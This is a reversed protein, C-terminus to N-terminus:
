GHQGGMRRDDGVMVARDAMETLRSKVREGLQAGLESVPVNSTILTPLMYEYRHNILRYNIEEVWESDKAAGLDDLVLVPADAYRQFEAESDVGHRPRLRAYLDAATTFTWRCQVGSAALAHLAGYAQHTKGVGTPGLLVLSPGRRVSPVAGRQGKITAAVVRRVWSAVDANDPHADVYRPPVFEALREAAQRRAEEIWVEDYAAPHDREILVIPDPM